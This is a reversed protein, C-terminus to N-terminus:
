LAPLTFDDSPAEGAHSGLANGDTLQEIVEQLIIAHATSGAQAHGFCPKALVQVREKALQPSGVESAAVHTSVDQPSLLFTCGGSGDIALQFKETAGKAQGILSIRWHDGADRVDLFERFMVYTGAQQIM